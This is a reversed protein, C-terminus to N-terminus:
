VSRQPLHKAGVLQEAEPQDEERAGAEGEEGRRDVQGGVVLLVGQPGARRVQDHVGGEEV